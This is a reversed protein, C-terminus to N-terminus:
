VRTCLKKYLEEYADVCKKLTYHKLFLEHNKKGFKERLAENNALYLISYAIEGPCSPKVLLGNREHVIAEPTGGVATAIVPLGSAMMEILANSFGEEHSPLIGLDASFLFPSPDDCNEIFSINESLGNKIIEKELSEKNGKGVFIAKWSYPLENKIQALGRILDLHGKYPKFNAVCVIIFQDASCGIKERYGAKDRVLYKQEDIGNYIVLTRCSPVGEEEILQQQIAKSNGLILNCYQHIKLEIKGIIPRKRQYNNLSRRSMLIPGKHGVLKAAICGLIYSEPLFFHVIVNKKKKMVKCVFFFRYLLCGWRPRFYLKPYYVKINAHKFKGIIDVKNTLVILEINWGREALSPLIHTLHTETGGVELTGIVVRITLKNKM